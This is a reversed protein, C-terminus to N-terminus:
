PAVARVHGTLWDIEVRQERSRHRLTITGGTSSGDPFFRIAGATPTLRESEATLLTLTAGDPAALTRNGGGAVRYTHTAVDLAFLADVGSARAEHRATKLAAVLERTGNNTRARDLARDIAPAAAATLLAAITLAVVVEILTIGTHNRQLKTHV